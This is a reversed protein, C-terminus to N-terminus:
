PRPALYVVGLPPLTLVTSHPLGHWEKAETTLVPGVDTGSGAFVTADTNVLVEWEGGEPLGVRYGYRPVPTLNALCAVPRGEVGVPLRLFSICSQDADNADIWRFGEHTFDGSWLAPESANLRGLEELLVGVGHHWEAEDLHWDVSREESWERDQAVEAGMFLLQKGPHAYM